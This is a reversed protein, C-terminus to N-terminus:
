CTRGFARYLLVKAELRLRRSRHRGRNWLIKLLACSVQVRPSMMRLSFISALMLSVGAWYRRGQQELQARSIAPLYRKWIEIARAMDRMNVGSREQM